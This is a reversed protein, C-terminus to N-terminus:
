PSKVAPVVDSLVDGIKRPPLVLDAGKEAAARPMGFVASSEEDQAITFGGAERIAELGGAGDRGMGTLVVGVAKGGLREALSGFLIDASPRHLGPSTHRDLSFGGNWLRLHAGEPAVWVGSSVKATASALRVPPAVARDLWRVLGETFGDAIHQVVIIPVQFSAPIRGLLALLAQPGGTSACIGIASATRRVRPAHERPKALRARPHRIVRAGALLKLRKRFGAAAAGRPDVLDLQGKGMAELAGAALAAAAVESDEEVHSSLVLIPVPHVNMIEEVAELGSMGPLEIDMTVLDPKLRPLLEIAEEANECVAAVDVEGGESVAQTLVAAYTRSDECILVRM